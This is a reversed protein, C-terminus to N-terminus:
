NTLKVASFGILCVLRQVRNKLMKLLRLRM